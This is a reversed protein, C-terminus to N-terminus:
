RIAGWKEGLSTAPQLRVGRLLWKALSVLGAETLHVTERGQAM